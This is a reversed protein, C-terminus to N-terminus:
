CECQMLLDSQNLVSRIPEVLKLPDAHPEICISIHGSDIPSVFQYFNGYRVLLFEVGGCDIDGRQKVLALLTPNVLLEEYKDSESSSAGKTGSRSSTLLKKNSYIAVYRIDNSLSFITEILQQSM